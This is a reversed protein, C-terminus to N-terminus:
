LKKRAEQLAEEFEGVIRQLAVGSGNKVINIVDQLVERRSIGAIKEEQKLRIPGL